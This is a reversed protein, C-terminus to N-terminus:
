PTPLETTPPKQPPGALPLRVLFTTGEGVRSEVEISGGHMRAISTAIALGLGTGGEGNTRVKDVRYFRDFIFPLHDEPIGAGTDRVAVVAQEDQRSVSLAVEGGAPTYRIANDLINMFLQRLKVRDGRVTPGDLPGLGLRLGKEQALAELDQGLEALLGALDVDQVNLPECGSDSRALVLLKGVIESMYAVEQSVLELSRRYEEPDRTKELALSSEAQLVALPTRLEHSADAVFQRQKVFAEELRAIMGNLTSALRGLEDDGVVDIRRSLDSEGIGRAIDAMREVPKLTRGALFWGGVGALLVVLISSNLMVMRFAALVSLIDTTVRGVVLAARTQSDINIPTAYMRINPGNETEASVFSPTGFLAQQVTGQVDSIALNAPGLRQWLRGDADYILVIEDLKRDFLVREGEFKITGKLELVRAKLSEDLNRYLARSLLYYAVTGFVVLILAFAILYWVTLRFKISKHAIM